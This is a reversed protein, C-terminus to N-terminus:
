ILTRRRLDDVVAHVAPATEPMAVYEAHSFYGCEVIESRAAPEGTFEGFYCSMRVTTGAPEGHAQGEFVGYPRVTSPRLVCGIEEGVERALAVEDTEGPEHKGGPLYFADRGRSRVLLVRSDRIHVLAVTRIV